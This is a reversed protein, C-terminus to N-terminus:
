GVHADFLPFEGHAPFSRLGLNEPPDGLLVHHELLQHPPDLFDQFFTQAGDILHRVHDGLQAVPKDFM